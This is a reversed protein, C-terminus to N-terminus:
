KEGLAYKEGPNEEVFRLPACPTEAGAARLVDLTKALDGGQGRLCEMAQVDNLRPFVDRVERVKEEETRQVTLV